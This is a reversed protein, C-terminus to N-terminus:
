KYEELMRSLGTEIDVTPQWGLKTLLSIDAKSNMVENNRYNIAGFNCFTTTHSLDQLLKVLQKISISEGSGVPVKSYSNFNRLNKVVVDIANLVDTIYIFDRQQEGKTLKLEPVNRIMADLLYRVFNNNGVGMGYFHELHLDIFTIKGLLSERKGWESFQRKSLAYFNLEEPLATNINVFYPIKAVIAKELVNISYFLNAQALELVTIDKIEYLGACHIIACPADYDRIDDEFNSFRILDKTKDCIFRDLILIQYGKNALFDKLNTGLYGHSGTLIINM